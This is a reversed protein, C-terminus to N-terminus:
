LLYSSKWIHLHCYPSWFMFFILFCSVKVVLLLFCYKKQLWGWHLDAIKRIFFEFYNNLSARHSVLFYLSLDIFVPFYYVILILLTDSISIMLFNGILFEPISSHLSSFSFFYLLLPCQHCVQDLLLSFRYIQVCDNSIDSSFFFSFILSSIRHSNYSVM